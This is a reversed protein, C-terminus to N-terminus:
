PAVTLRGEMAAAGHVTCYFGYSAGPALSATGTVEATSGPAVPEAGTDFLPHGQADVDEATLTHFGGVPDVNVLRLTQGSSITLDVTMRVDGPLYHYASTVVIPVAPDAARVPHPLSARATSPLICCIALAVCLRSRVM